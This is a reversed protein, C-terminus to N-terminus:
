MKTYNGRLRGHAIEHAQINTDVQAPDAPDAPAPLTAVDLAYVSLEYTHTSPGVIPCMGQYGTETGFSWRTQKAGGGPPNPALDKPLDQALTTVSTPVDYLVWHYNSAGGLTLDRMVIAFSMAGAPAGTWGLPISENAGDCVSHVVPITGGDNFATSTLTMTGADTSADAPAFSDAPADAAADVLSSADDASGGSDGAPSADAHSGGDASSAPADNTSSDCAAITMAVLLSAAASGIFLRVSM